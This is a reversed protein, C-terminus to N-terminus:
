STRALARLTSGYSFLLLAASVLAAVTAPVGLDLPALGNYTQFCGVALLGSYGATASGMLAARRKEAWGSFLMLFALLPLVQLAHMSFAHPLKM